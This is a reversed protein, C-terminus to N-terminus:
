SHQKMLAKKGQVLIKSAACDPGQDNFKDYIDVIHFQSFTDLGGGSM